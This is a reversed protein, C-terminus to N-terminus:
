ESVRLREFKNRHDHLAFQAQPSTIGPARDHTSATMSRERTTRSEAAPTGDMTSADVTLRPEVTDRMLPDSQRFRKDAEESFICQARRQVCSKCPHDGSCRHKRLDANGELHASPDSRKRCRECAKSAYTRKRKSTSADDSPTSPQDM